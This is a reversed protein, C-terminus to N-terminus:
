YKLPQIVWTFTKLHTKPLRNINQVTMSVWLCWRGSAFCLFDLSLCCSHILWDCQPWTMKTKTRWLACKPDYLATFAWIKMARVLGFYAFRHSYSLYFEINTQLNSTQLLQMLGTVRQCWWVVKEPKVGCVKKLYFKEIAFTVLPQLHPM